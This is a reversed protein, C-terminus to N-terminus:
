DLKSLYDLIESMIDFSTELDIARTFLVIAGNRYTLPLNGEFEDFIAQVQEPSFASLKESFAGAGILTYGHYGPEDVRTFYITYKDNKKASKRKMVFLENDDTSFDYNDGTITNLFFKRKGDENLKEPYLIRNKKVFKMSTVIDQCANYFSDDKECITFLVDGNIIVNHEKSALEGLYFKEDVLYDKMIDVADFVYFDDGEQQVGIVFDTTDFKSKGVYFNEEYYEFSFKYLTKKELLKEMEEHTM